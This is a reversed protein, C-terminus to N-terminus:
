FVSILGHRLALVVAHTRDNATLKRLISTIHNKITQESIGLVLAITKNGYGQAVYKLIEVERPSLPATLNDANKGTLSIEQFQRLVREAVRPKALLKENLLNEGQCVQKILKVVEEGSTSKSILGSAGAKVAQFIQEEDEYPTMIIVSVSPTRQRVQLAISLGRLSPLDIDMVLVSPALAEVLSLADETAESDSVVEIDGVQSLYACLGKRFLSNNDIVSVKIKEM